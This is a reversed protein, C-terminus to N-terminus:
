ASLRSDVPTQRQDLCDHGQSATARLLASTLILLASTLSPIHFAAMLVAGLTSPLIVGMDQHTYREWDWRETISSCDWILGGEVKEKWSLIKSHLEPQGSSM